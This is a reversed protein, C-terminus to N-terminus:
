NGANMIQEKNKWMGITGQINETGAWMYMM